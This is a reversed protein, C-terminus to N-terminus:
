NNTESPLSPINDRIWDLREQAIKAEDVHLELIKQYVLNANQWDDQKEYIKGLRFYAKIIWPVNGQYLYPIKFYADIANQAQGMMEYINAIQFQIEVDAIQSSGKESKLTEEFSKLANVDDNNSRYTEAIKYLADRKFEPSSVTIKKYSDIATDPDVDKSFIDAISLKAKALLEQNSNDDILKYESIAKDFTGQEQYIQGLGYHAIDAKESGPFFDILQQYYSTANSFDFTKHYYDGLWLLSELEAETRPYKYAIIKFKKLAEKVDGLNYICKAMNIECNAILATNNPNNRIIKQFVNISENCDQLNFLSLGLFYQADSQFENLVPSDKIFSELQDRAAAWDGKKYYAVGLYYKIDYVYKSKPFNVQLTQFSLAAADIKNLKLLAIGQRYQIYDAYISDPYDKLIKDYIDIAKSFNEADQYADGIQSLASVKIDKNNIKDAIEQFTQVSKELDEKKLYAWALGFYTKELFDKFSPNTNFKDIIQQYQGISEDYKRLLYLINAKGLFAEILRPSYPSNIIISDYAELAASYDNTETALTALGLDIDDLPMNKEKSLERAEDFFQKSKAIDGLKFYSWGISIKSMVILKDGRATEMAKNYLEIAKTFDSLYYYSEGMYFYTEDARKTQPFKQLYNEFAEVSEKYNHLQYQSEGAKFTADEAFEHNPYKKVFEEFYKKAIEFKGQDFQAWALSYAAQAAYISNPYLDVVQRYYNEAQAHDSSKLYTEGLWYLTADKFDPATLLNKFIDFAKVYQTKFFYCQGLLLYVETRKPNQPYKELFQDVYRIAVDYFGDDFAKQAVLYLETEEDQACFSVPPLFIAVFTIIFTAIFIIRKLRM